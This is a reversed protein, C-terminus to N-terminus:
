WEETRVWAPLDIDTIEDTPYGPWIGSATCDRFIELAESVKRDGWAMARETLQNVHVLYPATKEVAIHVFFPERQVAGDLDLLRFGRLYFPAQIAYGYNHAAKSLADPAASETTKLDVIGDPRLWDAKARCLVGTAPDRWILTREPQGATFLKAAIPHARVAAAMAEAAAMDAPRLPVRGAARAQAVLDKDAQNQWANPGGKGTGVVAIPEPGAGLVLTHVAHGVDFERRVELTGADMHHRFRAPGGPKLLERAGTSSLSARALPSTFYAEDDLDFVGTDHAVTAATM